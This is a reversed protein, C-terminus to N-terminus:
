LASRAIMYAGLVLLLTSVARRFTREPLRRLFGEGLLTGAVVGAVLAAILPGHDLLEAGSTAVYVPVRAADVILATATATAVFARPSLPFALLAASRIGGQNGM